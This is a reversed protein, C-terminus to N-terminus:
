KSPRYSPLGSNFFIHFNPFEVSFTKHLSGKLWTDGVSNQTTKEETLHNLVFKSLKSKEEPGSNQTNKEEASHNSRFKSLKRNQPVAPIEKPFLGNTEYIGDEL